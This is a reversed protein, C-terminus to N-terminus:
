VLFGKSCAYSIVEKWASGFRPVYATHSRYEGRKALSDMESSTPTHGLLAKANELLKLLHGEISLPKGRALPEVGARDRVREITTKEKTSPFLTKAQGYKPWKMAPLCRGDSGKSQRYEINRTRYDEILEDQSLDDHRCLPIGRSGFVRWLLQGRFAEQYTHRDKLGNKLCLDTVRLPESKRNEVWWAQAEDLLQKQFIDLTERDNPVQSLYNSAFKNLQDKKTPSLVAGYKKLLDAPFLIEVRPNDVRLTGHGWKCWIEIRVKPRLALYTDIQRLKAPSTYDQTMAEIVLRGKEFYIDPRCRKEGAQLIRNDIDLNAKGFIECALETVFRQWSFGQPSFGPNKYPIGLRLCRDRLDKLRTAASPVSFARETGGFKILLPYRKSALNNLLTRSIFGFEEYVALVLVDLLESTANRCRPAAGGALYIAYEFSGFEKQYVRWSPFGENRTLLNWERRSLETQSRKVLATHLEVLLKAKPGLTQM